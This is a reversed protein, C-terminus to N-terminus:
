FGALNARELRAEITSAPDLDLERWRRSPVSQVVTAPALGVLEARSSPSRVPSPM